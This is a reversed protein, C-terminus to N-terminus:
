ASNELLGHLEDIRKYIANLRRAKKLDAKSVLIFSKERELKEIEDKIRRVREKPTWWSTINDLFNGWGM